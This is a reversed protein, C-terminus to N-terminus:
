IGISLQAYELDVGTDQTIDINEVFDRITPQGFGQCISLDVLWLGLFVVEQQKILSRAIAIILEPEIHTM